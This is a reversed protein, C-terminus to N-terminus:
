STVPNVLPTLTLPCNFNQTVGGIELDDDEDSDDGDESVLILWIFFLGILFCLLLTGKDFLETLPPM